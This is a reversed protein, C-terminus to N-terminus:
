KKTPQPLTKFCLIAAATEPHNRTHLYQIIESIMGLIYKNGKFYHQNGRLFKPGFIGVVKFGLNKMEQVTWASRHNQLPNKNDKQHMYGNPTFIIVKKIAIKEMNKILKLGEVKTLHEIVDFACCAAFSKRPFKDGVSRIDSLIYRHHTKNKKAFSLAHKHLDLGVVYDFNLFRLPSTVGCGLDLVTNCGKLTKKLENVYTIIPIVPFQDRVLHYTKRSFKAHSNIM